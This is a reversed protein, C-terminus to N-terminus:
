PKRRLDNQRYRPKLNIVTDEENKGIALNVKRCEKENKTKDKLRTEEKIHLHVLLSDM